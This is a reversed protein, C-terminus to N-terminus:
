RRASAIIESFLALDPVADALPTPNPGGEVCAAHFTRWEVEFPDMHFPGRIFLSNDTPTSTQVELGMPLNRVYPTPYQFAIRKNQTNVEFGAEFRVVDAILCEYLATFGGYDFMATIQSGGRKVEAAIVRDPSRGLIDRMASLSHSSLGTLVSYAKELLPTVSGGCAEAIMAARLESSEKALEAPIDGIPTAVDAVQNFYWPGECIVDRVRVYAIEDLARVEERAAVFAPAYRRMYGVMAVRGSAEAVAITEDLDAGTLCAPKEVLVHKGAALALRAHRGHYQDPSLVLVADLGADAVLAEVSSHRLAIGWRDAVKATVSPSPDYAAVVDFLSDLRELVPLHILQAAEGLGILGLRLTMTGGPM